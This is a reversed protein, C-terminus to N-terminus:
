TPRITSEMRTRRDSIWYRTVTLRRARLKGGSRWRALCTWSHGTSRPTCRLTATRNKRARTWGPYRKHLGRNAAHRVSRGNTAVPKAIIPSPHSGASDATAPAPAVSAPLPAAPAPPPAPAPSTTTSCWQQPVCITLDNSTGPMDLLDGQAVSPALAGLAIVLWAAARVRTSM